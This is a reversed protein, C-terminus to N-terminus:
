KETIAMFLAALGCCVAFLGLCIMRTELSPASLVATLGLIGSLISMFFKM